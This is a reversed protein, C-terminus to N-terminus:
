RSIRRLYRSWGPRPYLHTLQGMQSEEFRSEDIVVDFINSDANSGDDHHPRLIYGRDAAVADGQSEVQIIEVFDGM